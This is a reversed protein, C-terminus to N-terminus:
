ALARIDHAKHAGNGTFVINAGQKDGAQVIIVGPHNAVFIAFWQTINPQVDTRLMRLFGVDAVGNGRERLSLNALSASFAM